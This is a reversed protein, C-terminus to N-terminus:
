AAILFNPFTRSALSFDRSTQPHSHAPRSHCSMRVSQATQASIEAEITFTARTFKSVWLLGKTKEFMKIPRIYDINTNMLVPVHGAELCAEISAIKEFGVMRMDELWRIYVINSVHGNYDIDYMRVTFEMETVLSRSAGDGNQNM